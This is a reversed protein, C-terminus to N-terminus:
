ETIDESLDVVTKIKKPFKNEDFKVEDYLKKKFADTDVSEIVHNLVDRESNSFVFDKGFFRLEFNLHIFEEHLKKINTAIDSSFLFEIGNIEGIQNSDSQALKGLFDYGHADKNLEERYKKLRDLNFIFEEYIKNRKDFLSIQTNKKNSIIQWVLSIISIIIAAISVFLSVIAVNTQIINLNELM